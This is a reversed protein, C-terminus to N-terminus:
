LRARQAPTLWLHLRGFKDSEAPSPPEDRGERAPVGSAYGWFQEPLINQNDDASM